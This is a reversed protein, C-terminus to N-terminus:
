GFSAVDALKRSGRGTDAVPPEPDGCLAPHAFGTRRACRLGSVAKEAIPYIPEGTKRNLVVMLGMKNAQVLAPITKGDKHIDVLAPASNTDLDWIDHHILQRSWKVEGTEANVASPRPWRCSRRATAAM